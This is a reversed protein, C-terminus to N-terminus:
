WVNSMCELSGFSYSLSMWFFVPEMQNSQDMVQSLDHGQPSFRLVRGDTICEGNPALECIRNDVSFCREYIIRIKM